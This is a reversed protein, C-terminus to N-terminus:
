IVSKIDERVIAPPAKVIRLREETEDANGSDYWSQNFIRNGTNRFCIVPPKNKGGRSTVIIDKM